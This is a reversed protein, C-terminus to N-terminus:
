SQFLVKYLYFFIVFLEYAVQNLVAMVQPIIQKTNESLLLCQSVLDLGFLAHVMNQDRLDHYIASDVLFVGIQIHNGNKTFLSFFFVTLFILLCCHTHRKNVCVEMKCSFWSNKVDLTLAMRFAIISMTKHLGIKPNPLM